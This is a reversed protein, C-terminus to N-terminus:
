VQYPNYTSRDCSPSFPWSRLQHLKSILVTHSPLPGCAEHIVRALSRRTALHIVRSQMVAVPLPVISNRSPGSGEKGNRSVTSLSIPGYHTCAWKYAKWMKDALATMWGSLCVEYKSKRSREAVCRRATRTVETEVKVCCYRGTISTERRTRRPPRSRALRITSHAWHPGADARRGNKNLPM